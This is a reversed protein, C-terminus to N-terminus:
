FIGRITTTDDCKNGKSLRNSRRTYMPGGFWFARTCSKRDINSSTLLLKVSVSMFRTASRVSPNEALSRPIIALFAAHNGKPVMFCPRIGSRM